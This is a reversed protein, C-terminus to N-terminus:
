NNISVADASARGGDAVSTGFWAMGGIVDRKHYGYRYVCSIREGVGLNGKGHCGVVVTYDERKATISESKM